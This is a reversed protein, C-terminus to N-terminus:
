SAVEDTLNRLRAVEARLEGMQKIAREWETREIPQTGAIPSSRVEERAYIRRSTRVFAQKPCGTDVGNRLKKRGAIIHRKKEWFAM